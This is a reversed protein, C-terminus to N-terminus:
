YFYTPLLSRGKSRKPRSRKSFRGSNDISRFSFIDRARARAKGELRGGVCYAPPTLTGQARIHPWQHPEKWKLFLNLRCRLADIPFPTHSHFRRFEVGGVVDKTTAKRRNKPLSSGLPSMVTHTRFQNVTFNPYRKAATITLERQIVGLVLFDKKPDITLPKDFKQVPDILASVLIRFRSSLRVPRAPPRLGPCDEARWSNATCCASISRLSM